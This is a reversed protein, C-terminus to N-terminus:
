PNALDNCVPVIEDDDANHRLLVVDCRMLIPLTQPAPTPVIENANHSVM